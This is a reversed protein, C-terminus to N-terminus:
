GTSKQWHIVVVGAVILCVGFSRIFSFAENFGPLLIALLYVLAYSISLLPYARNLSLTNLAAMWCIMSLLYALLGCAVLGLSTMNTQVFLWSPSWQRVPPVHMMGWRMVLQALTVLIVSFSAYWYGRRM